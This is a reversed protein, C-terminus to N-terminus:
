PLFESPIPKADYMNATRKQFRWGAPTRVIDDEYLAYGLLSLANNKTSDIMGYMVPTRARIHNPGLKAMIPNGLHHVSIRAAGNRSRAQSTFDALAKRGKVIVRPADPTKGPFNLEGDETYLSSYADASGSDFYQSYRAMLDLVAFREESSLEDIKRAHAGADRAPAPTPVALILAAVAVFHFFTLNVPM